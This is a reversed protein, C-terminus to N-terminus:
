DSEEEEDTEEDLEDDLWFSDEEEDCEEGEELEVESSVDEDEVPINRSLKIRRLYESGCEQSCAVDQWRFEGGIAGTRCAEYEKGCVRCQLIGRM